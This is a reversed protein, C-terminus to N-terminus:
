VGANKIQDLQSFAKLVILKTGLHVYKLQKVPKAGANTERAMSVGEHHHYRRRM